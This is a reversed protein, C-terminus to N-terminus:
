LLTCANGEVYIGGVEDLTLQNKVNEFACTVSLARERTLGPDSEGLASAAAGIARRVGKGDVLAQSGRTSGLPLVLFLLFRAM